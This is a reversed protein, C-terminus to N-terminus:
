TRSEKQQAHEALKQQLNLLAPDNEDFDEAGAAKAKAAADKLSLVGSLGARKEAPRRHFVFSRDRVKPKIPHTKNNDLFIAPKKGLSVQASDSDKVAQVLQDLSGDPLTVQIGRTHNGGQSAPAALPLEDLSLRDPLRQGATTSFM